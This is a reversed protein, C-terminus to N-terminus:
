LFVLQLQNSVEQDKLYKSDGNHEQLLTLMVTHHDVEARLEVATTRCPPPGPQRDQSM